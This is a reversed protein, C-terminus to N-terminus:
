NKLSKEGSPNQVRKNKLSGLSKGIVTVSTFFFFLNDDLFELYKCPHNKKKKKQEKRGKVGRV